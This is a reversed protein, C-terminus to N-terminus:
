ELRASALNRVKKSVRRHSQSYTCSVKGRSNPCEWEATLDDLDVTEAKGPTLTADPYLKDPGVRETAPRGLLPEGARLSDPAAGFLLIVAGCALFFTRKAPM